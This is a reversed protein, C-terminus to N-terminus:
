RREFFICSDYQGTRQNHYHSRDCKCVKGSSFWGGDDRWYVCDGCYSSGGLAQIWDGTIYLQPRDFVQNLSRFGHELLYKNSNNMSRGGTLLSILLDTDSIFYLVSDRRSCDSIPAIGRKISWACTPSGLESGWWIRNVGVLKAGLLTYIQLLRKKILPLRSDQKLKIEGIEPSLSHSKILCSAFGEGELSITGLAFPCLRLECLPPISIGTQDETLVATESSENRDYHAEFLATDKEHCGSSTIIAIQYRLGNFTFEHTLAPILDDHEQKLSTIAIM